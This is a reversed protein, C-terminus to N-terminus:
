PQLKLSRPKPQSLQLFTEMVKKTTARTTRSLPDRRKTISASTVIRASAKPTYPASPTNVNSPKRPGARLITATKACETPMTPCTMM